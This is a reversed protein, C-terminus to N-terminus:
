IQKKRIVPIIKSFAIAVVGALVAEMIGNTAVVGLLIGVLASFAIGNAEAFQHGFFLYIGGLVLFTHLLTGLIAALPYAIFGKKDFKLFLKVMLATALGLLIRPVFCILLSLLSGKDSGPVAYAPTWVFAIAPNPPIFTWVIFSLLGCVFGMFTGPKTGMVVAAVIVPLHALTAVIPGVPLSGLPTFAMIAEIAVLLSLQVMVVTNKRQASPTQNTSM